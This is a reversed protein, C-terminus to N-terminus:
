NARRFPIRRPGPVGPGPPAQPQQPAAQPPPLAVKSQEQFTLTASELGKQLVVKAPKEEIKVVKIDEIAEGESKFYSRNGEKDQIIAQLRSQVGNSSVLGVFNFRAAFAAAPGPGSAIAGFPSRDIIIQYRAFDHTSEPLALSTFPTAFFLFM